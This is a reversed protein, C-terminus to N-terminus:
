AGVKRLELNAEYALATKSKQELATTNPNAIKLCKEVLLELKKLNSELNQISEEM